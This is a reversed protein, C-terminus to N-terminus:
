LCERYLALTQDACKNWSYRAVVRTGRERARQRAAEDNVAVLLAQELSGEEHPNFYFPADLCVEPLCSTNSVLAPCGAVMAELPPFGFGEYWSPYILLTAAAYAEALSTDSLQPLVLLQREVELRGALVREEPTLPGGGAAVLLLSKHLGTSRFARLLSNFNKYAARSGVFLLYEGPVRQRLETAAQSSGPLRNLGHHIVRTRARDIGYFRLLDQRSSESVCIIADARKYLNQKARIIKQLDPFLEPFREQVCDHHTAVVRRARVLPMRRYLTPHYIDVKGAFLALANGLSENALYRLNGRRLRSKWGVVNTQACPLQGFPYVTDHIGLWLETNVDRAGALSRMLEYFYRSAGGANQLSFVQHDYLIRMSDPKQVPAMREPSRRIPHSHVGERMSAPM